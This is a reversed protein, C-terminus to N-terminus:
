NELGQREASQNGVELSVEGLRELGLSDVVGGSGFREARFGLELLPMFLM